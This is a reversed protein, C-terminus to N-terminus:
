CGPPLDCADGIGDGDSDAQGPNYILPCNDATDNIGDGDADNPTQPLDQVEFCVLSFAGSRGFQAGGAEINGTGDKHGITAKGNGGMGLDADQTFGNLASFNAGDREQTGAYLAIHGPEIPAGPCAVAYCDNCGAESVAGFSAIQSTDTFFISEYSRDGPKNRWDVSFGHSTAAAIDAEKLYWASVTATDNRAQSRAELPHMDKNGYRVGEVWHSSGDVGHAVFVLLRNSGAVYHSQPDSGHHYWTRTPTAGPVCVGCDGACTECDEGLAVDCFGNGCQANPIASCSTDFMLGGFGPQIGSTGSNLRIKIFDNPLFNDFRFTHVDTSGDFSLNPVAASRDFNDQGTRGVRVVIRDRSDHALNTNDTVVHMCFSAPVGSKMLIKNVTNNTNNEAQEDVTSGSRGSFGNPLTFTNWDTYGGRTYVGRGRCSDFCNPKDASFTTNLDWPDFNFELWPPLYLQMNDDTRKPGVVAAADFQPFYFGTQGWGLFNDTSEKRVYTVTEGWAAAVLVLSAAISALHRLM